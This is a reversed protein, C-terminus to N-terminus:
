WHVRTKLRAIEERMTEIAGAIASHNEPTTVALVQKIADEVQASMADMKAMAESALEHADNAMALAKIATMNAAGATQTVADIAIDHADAKAQLETMTLAAAKSDDSAPNETPDPKETETDM